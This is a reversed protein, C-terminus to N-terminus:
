VIIGYIFTAAGTGGIIMSFLWFPVSKMLAAVSSLAIAIQFATVSYTLIHHKKLYYASERNKDRATKEFSDAQMRIEDQQQEYKKVLGEYETKEKPQVEGGVRYINEKISKAQYYSWLNTAHTQNLIEDNKAILMKSTLLTEHLGAIAGFVALIATSLALYPFLRFEKRIKGAHPEKMEHLAEGAKEAAEQMHEKKM